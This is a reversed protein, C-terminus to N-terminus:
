PFPQQVKKLILHGVVLQRFIHQHKLLKGHIGAPLNEKALQLGLRHRPHLLQPPFPRLPSGTRQRCVLCNYIHRLFCSCRVPPDSTGAKGNAYRRYTSTYCSEINNQRPIVDNELLLEMNKSRDELPKLKTDMLQSIALLDENTLSM